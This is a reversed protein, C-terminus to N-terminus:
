NSLSANYYRERASYYKLKKESSLGTPFHGDALINTNNLCLLSCIDEKATLLLHSFSLFGPHVVSVSQNLAMYFAKKM